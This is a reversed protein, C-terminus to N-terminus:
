RSIIGDAALKDLDSQSLSMNAPLVVFARGGLSEVAGGIGTAFGFSFDLIRTAVDTATNTFSLVVPQNTRVRRVVMQVDDYAAPRLVYPPLQAVGGRPMPTLGVDGPTTTGATGLAGRGTNQATMPTDGYTQRYDPRYADSDVPYGYGASASGANSGVPRGSRTYVSVSEAEPRRTNGLIGSTDRQPEEEEDDYYDEFDGDDYYDDNGLNLRERISDFFGM